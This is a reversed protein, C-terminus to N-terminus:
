GNTVKLHLGTIGQSIGCLVFTLPVTIVAAIVNAATSELEPLIFVDAAIDVTLLAAGSCLLCKGYLVQAANWASENATAPAKNYTSFRFIGKDGLKYKQKLELIGAILLEAFFVAQIVYLIIKSVLM